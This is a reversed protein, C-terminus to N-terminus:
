PKDLLLCRLCSMLFYRCTPLYLPSRPRSHMSVETELALHRWKIQSFISELAPVLVEGDSELGWMFSTPIM